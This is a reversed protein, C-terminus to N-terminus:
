WATPIPSSGMGIDRNATRHILRPYPRLTTPTEFLGLSSSLLGERRSKKSPIAARAFAPNSSGRLLASASLEATGLKVSVGTALPLRKGDLKSGNWHCFKLAAPYATGVVPMM